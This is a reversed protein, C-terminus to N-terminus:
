ESAVRKRVAKVEAYRLVTGNWVYGPRIEEAVHGPPFESDDTLDIVTMRNPDVARGICRISQIQNQELARRLRNQVLSYGELLAGFVATDAWEVKGLLLERATRYWRRSWWRQLGSQSQFRDDLEELLTERMEDRFRQRATDVAKRGRQLAEDLEALAEAMPRALSEAAAAQRSEAARLVEAAREMAEIATRAQEELNRSSKTQLKLEHRLATFQEALQFLGIDSDPEAARQGPTEEMEGAAQAEARADDLWQRLRGLLRDHDPWHNM